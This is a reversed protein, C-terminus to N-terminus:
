IARLYPNPRNGRAEWKQLTKEVQDEDSSQENARTGGPRYPFHIEPRYEENRGKARARGLIEAFGPDELRCKVVDPPLLPLRSSEYVEEPKAQDSM